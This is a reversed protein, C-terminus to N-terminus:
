GVSFHNDSNESAWKHLLTSFPNHPELPFLNPPQHSSAAINPSTSHQPPNHTTPKPNPPRPTAAPQSPSPSSYTFTSPPAILDHYLPQPPSQLKQYAPPHFLPSPQDPSPLPQYGLNPFHPLTPLPQFLSQALDTISRSDVSGSTSSSSTPAKKQQQQLSYEMSRLQVELKKKEAEKAKILENAQYWDKVTRAIHSLETKLKDIKGQCEQILETLTQAQKRVTQQIQNQGELLQTLMANQKLANEAQWNLAAEAPSVKRPSGDPNKEAPTKIKWVHKTNQHPLEFDELPPFEVTYSPTGPSFMCCDIPPQYSYKHPSEKAQKFCSVLTDVPIYTSPPPPSPKEGWDDPPPTPFIPDFDPRNKPYLVYFDFKGSPEGLLGVEPDGKEYRDQLLQQPSKKNKKKHM